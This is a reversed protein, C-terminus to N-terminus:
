AYTFDERDLTLNPNYYPDGNQLIEKHREFLSAKEQDFRAMKEPTDEYGRSISEHHYLEAFPTFVNYYGKELVRLCFDVDNYAVKFNIADLGNVETYISKKIMLCAATVASLNQVANLRNFYGQDDRNFMKHSHGAYGGLGIIVGAHQIKDNPYYLKAGVCGVDERQSHELMAEIWTPEIVEIDNNLLLIQEGKAYTNVAHNNIDAYNFEVNYEYFKVRNDLAELQEMIDFTAAEESNNSIGIIEYNEYTSKSLVSNVCMELLEPKDKFPIIISILPEKIEYRVRFYHNIKTNEVVGPIGRRKLAKVLAMRGAELAAPKVDSDVCTSSPLMRWHYLVKQIHYIKSTQETLRLFLEFDQAGDHEPDFYGVNDLLKKSFCTFHTIYNHSMLLDPSFNPKFHPYTYLGAETVLDEDSYIFEADHENIAKVMEYLADPTIEDDNDMLAIYDGVALDIAANSAGSINLNEQLYTIKIKPNTIQELYEITKPNTSKDDAICLEWNEYWQDGITHIAIDLWKPDINYVPMVISILPQKAFNKIEAQIEATIEPRHYQYVPLGPTVTLEQPAEQPFAEEDFGIAEYPQYGALTLLKNPIMKKMKQKLRKKLTLSRLLAIHNNQFQLQRDRLDVINRAYILDDGLERLGVDKRQLEANQKEVRQIKKELDQKLTDIALGRAQIELHLKANQKDAREKQTELDQKLTNIALGRTQIEKHVIDLEKAQAEANQHMVGLQAEKERLQVEANQLQDIILYNMKTYKRKQYYFSDKMVYTDVFHREMKYYLISNELKLSPAFGKNLHKIIELTRYITHNIPLYIDYVWEYDIFYINNDKHIINSLILDINTLGDFCLEGDLDSFDLDGFLMKFNETVMTHSDFTSTKFGTKLLDIYESIIKQAEDNNVLLADQFKQEFSIGEIFEFTLSIEDEAVIKAFKIKPNLISTTLKEYNEKMKLLHPLAEKTLAEKKVYKQNDKEYIVTKLQYERARESNNKVYLIKM